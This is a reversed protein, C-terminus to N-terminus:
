YFNGALTAVGVLAIERQHEAAESDGGNSLFRCTLPVGDTMPASSLHNCCEVHVSNM